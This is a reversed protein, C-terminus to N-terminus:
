LTPDGHDGGKEVPEADKEVPKLFMAELEVRFAWFLPKVFNVEQGPKLNHVVRTIGRKRLSAPVPRPPGAVEVPIDAM